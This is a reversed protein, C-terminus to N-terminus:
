PARPQGALAFAGADLGDLKDADLGSGSGDTALVASM